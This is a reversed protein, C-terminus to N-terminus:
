NYNNRDYDKDKRNGYYRDNSEDRNNKYERNGKNDNKRREGSRSKQRRSKESTRCQEATHDRSGCNTCPLKQKKELKEDHVTMMSMMKSFGVELGKSLQDALTEQLKPIEGIHMNTTNFSQGMTALPRNLEEQEDDYVDRLALKLNEAHDVITTGKIDFSIATPSIVALHQKIRKNNVGKIFCKIIKRQDYENLEDSEKKGHSKRYLNVIEIFYSRFAKTGQKFERLKIKFYTEDSIAFDRLWSIFDELNTRQKMNLDKMLNVANNNDLFAMILYRDERYQNTEKCLKLVEIADEVNNGDAGNPNWLDKLQIVHTGMYGPCGLNALYNPEGNSQNNQQGTMEVVTRSLIDYTEPESWIDEISIEPEEKQTEEEEITTSTEEGPHEQELSDREILVSTNLAKRLGSPGKLIENNEFFKFPFFLSLNNDIFKLQLTEKLFESVSTFRSSFFKELLEISCILTRYPLRKVGQYRKAGEVATKSVLEASHNKVLPEEWNKGLGICICFNDRTPSRSSESLLVKSILDNVRTEKAKTLAWNEFTVLYARLLETPVKNASTYKYYTFKM